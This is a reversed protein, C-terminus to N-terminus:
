AAPVVIYRRFYGTDELLRDLKFTGDPHVLVQGVTPLYQSAITAVVVRSVPNDNATDGIGAYVEVNREISVNGCAVGSLLSGEGLKALARVVARGLAPLAM